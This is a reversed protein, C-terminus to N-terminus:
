FYKTIFHILLWWGMTLGIAVLIIVGSIELESM